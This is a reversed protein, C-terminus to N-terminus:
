AMEWYVESFMMHNHLIILNFMTKLIKFREPSLYCAEIFM